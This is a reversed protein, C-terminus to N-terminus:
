HKCRFLVEKELQTMESFEEISIGKEQLYSKNEQSLNNYLYKDRHYQEIKRYRAEQNFATNAKKISSVTWQKTKTDWYGKILYGEELWSDVLRGWATNKAVRSKNVMPNNVNNNVIKQM